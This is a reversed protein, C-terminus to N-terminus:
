VDEVLIYKQGNVEITKGSNQKEEKEEYYNVIEKLERNQMIAVTGFTLWGILMVTLTTFVVIKITRFTDAIIEKRTRTNM